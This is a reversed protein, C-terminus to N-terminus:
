NDPRGTRYAGGVPVRWRFGSDYDEGIYKQMWRTGLLVDDANAATEAADWAAGEERTASRVDKVM